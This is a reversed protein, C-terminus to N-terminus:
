RRMSRCGGRRRGRGILRELWDASVLDLLASTTVLDVPGDLAAELDRALDIPTTTVSVAAAARGTAARALLGLDNDVLRWNQRPPLHAASRGCPRAPAAPSISSRCRRRAPSRRPLPTSCTATARACITAARAAGAMRGLLREHSAGGARARVRQASQAGPRCARRGGRARERWGSARRAARRDARRLAQACAGADDPRCGPRRRGGARNRPHRRRHHRRGAPRARDGRRYAM